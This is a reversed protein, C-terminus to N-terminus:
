QNSHQSTVGGLSALCNYFNNYADNNIYLLPVQSGTFIIPKSLGKILFSLASATHEMTDTGHIVIFYDYANFYRQLAQIVKTMLDIRMESSDILPDMEVISYHFEVANFARTVIVHRGSSEYSYKHFMPFLRFKSALSNSGDISRISKANSSMGFTGGTNLILLRRSVLDKIEQNIQSRTREFNLAQPVNSALGWFSPASKLTSDDM